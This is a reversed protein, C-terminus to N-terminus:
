GCDRQLAAGLLASLNVQLELRVADAASTRHAEVDADRGILGLVGSGAAAELDALDATCHRARVGVRIVATSYAPVTTPLAPETSVSVPLMGAARAVPSTPDIAVTMRRSTGNRLELVPNGVSGSLAASVALDGPAEACLERPVLREPGGRRVPVQHVVGDATRVPIELALASASACDLRQLVSVALERGPGVRLGGALSRVFASGSPRPDGFSSPVVDVPLPGANLLRVVVDVVPRRTWRLRTWSDTLATVALAARQEAVNQQRQHHGAWAGGALLGATLVVLLGVTTRMRVATRSGLWAPGPPQWRDDDRESRPPPLTELDVVDPEDPRRPRPPGPPASAEDGAGVDLVEFGM